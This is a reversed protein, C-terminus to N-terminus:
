NESRAESPTSGFSKRFAAAFSASSRYGTALAVETISKGERLLAFASLLRSQQRWQDPPLGTEQKFRRALTKHTLGLSAAIEATSQVTEAGRAKAAFAIMAASSPLPLSLDETAMNKLEALLLPVVLSQVGCSTGSQGDAEARVILEKILPTIRVLRATEPMPHAIESSIYLTRIRVDGIASFGHNVRAPLWLARGPPVAWARGPTEAMLVGALTHLLQGVPHSHSPVITGGSFDRALVFVSAAQAAIFDLDGARKDMKRHLIIWLRYRCLILRTLKTNSIQLLALGGHVMSM